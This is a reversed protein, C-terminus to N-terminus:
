AVYDYLKAEETSRGQFIRSEIAKVFHEACRQNFTRVQIDGMRTHLVVTGMPGVHSYTIASIVYHSIEDCRVYFPKKDVLLIRRNTVVIAGRGTQPPQAFKYRGYVIGTIHEDPQIITPLLRTEPLRMDYADGGVGRIESEVLERHERLFGEKMHTTYLHDLHERSLVTLQM